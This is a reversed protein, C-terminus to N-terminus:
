ISHGPKPLVIERTRSSNCFLLLNLLNRNFKCIHYAHLFLVIFLARNPKCAYDLRCKGTHLNFSPHFAKELIYLAREILDASRPVEGEERLMDSVQILLDVHDSIRRILLYPNMSTAFIVSSVKTVVHHGLGTTASREQLKETRSVCPSTKLM